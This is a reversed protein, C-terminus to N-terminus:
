NNDDDDVVNVWAYMGDLLHGRVNCIVLYRGPTSFGFSDTRNQVGSPNVNADAFAPPTGPNVGKAFVGVDYNVFTGTAPINAKVDDLKVGSNYVWVYHFGSVIFNVTAPVFVKTGDLKKARTIRVTIEQPLIHHNPLGNPPPLATNLGAGFAVTVSGPVKDKDDARVSTSATTLALMSVAVLVKLSKM